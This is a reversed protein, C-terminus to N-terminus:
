STKIWTIINLILLFYFGFKYFKLPDKKLLPTNKNFFPKVKESNDLEYNMLSYNEYRLDENVSTFVSRTWSPIFGRSSVDKIMEDKITEVGGSM